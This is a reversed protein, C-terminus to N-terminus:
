FGSLLQNKFSQLSTDFSCPQFKLQTISKSLDFGTKVPRKAPLDLQASLVPHIYKKDLNFVEAIKLAIEYISLLQSGSINFVGKAKFNMASICASALEEVRTPMRWQDTVVYIDKKKELNNKVWLIINSKKDETLGFVLITRIITYDIKCNTIIEESKLKSLGYYNVPNPKDDEKYIGKLGDFIFDTSMHILHSGTQTCCSVLQKVVEVNILDCATQNLECQDVNTMAATHVIFDPKLQRILACVKPFDTLDVDFYTYGRNNQLRNPGRSVAYVDYEQTEKLLKILTQGLLGNSGTILVRKLM